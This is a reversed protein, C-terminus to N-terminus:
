KQHVLTSGQATLPPFLRGDAFTVIGNGYGILEPITLPTGATFTWRERPPGSTPWVLTSGDSGKNTYVIKAAM